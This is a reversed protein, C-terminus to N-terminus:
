KYIDAGSRYEMEDRKGKASVAIEVRGLSLGPSYATVRCRGVRDTARLVVVTMGAVANWTLGTPFGAWTQPLLEGPGYWTFSITHYANPVITGEQDVVWATIYALSERDGSAIHDVDSRLVIGIPPGATKRRDVVAQSGSRGIAELTGAEYPMEWVRPPHALGGHDGNEKTGLSQGNLRLEVQACNSYVKVSKKKGVEGRWTWHGCIHVM